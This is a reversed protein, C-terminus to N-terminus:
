FEIVSEVTASGQESDRIVDGLSRLASIQFHPFSLQTALSKQELVPCDHSGPVVQPRTGQSSPIPFSM